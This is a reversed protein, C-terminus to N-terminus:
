TMQLPKFESLDKAPIGVVTTNAKIDNLVISGALITVNRGVTINGLVKSGAGITVEDRIKPHRDGVDNGTGGLTVSQMITVNDGVVATEGVVIGTAHDLMVGQGFQAAPHIDVLFIESCRSQMFLALEKRDNKWLHNAIRHIQLAQFGSLNLLVSMLSKVAPDRKFVAQADTIAADVIWPATAYNQQFIERLPMAGLHNNAIKKRM